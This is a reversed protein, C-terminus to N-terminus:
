IMKKLTKKKIGKKKIDKNTILTNKSDDLYPLEDICKSTKEIHEFIFDIMTGKIIKHKTKTNGEKSQNPYRFWHKSYITTDIVKHQKNDGDHIFEQPYKKLLNLHIEKIKACTGHLKPIVYHFSGQKSKNETYMIDDAVVNINYSIKLFNILITMFQNIDGTCNDCDGFFKYTKTPDIREHYCKDTSELLMIVKELKYEEGGTDIFKKNAAAYSKISYIKFLQLINLKINNKM